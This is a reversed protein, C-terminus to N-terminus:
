DTLVPISQRVPYEVTTTLDAQGLYTPTVPALVPGTFTATGSWTVVVTVRHTGSTEYTHAGAWDIATGPTTSTHRSHGEIDPSGMDWTWHVATVEATVTWGRLTLTTTASTPSDYWLGTELGVLGGHEVAPSLDITPRAAVVSDWIEERSPPETPTLPEQGTPMCSVWATDVVTGDPLTMTTIALTGNAVQGDETLWPLDNIAGPPPPSSCVGATLSPHLARRRRHERLESIAFAGARDGRGREHSGVRCLDHRRIPQADLM